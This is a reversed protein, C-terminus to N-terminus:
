LNDTVEYIKHLSEIRDLLQSFIDDNMSGIVIYDIKSKNFYYFQNAKVYGEKGDDPNTDTDNHSIYFNGEYSLKKTKQEEGKFSSLVNCIFDYDLGKIKEQEDDIIVFSHKGLTIGNDQYENVVIIDGVKCM